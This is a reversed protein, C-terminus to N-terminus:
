NGSQSEFRRCRSHSTKAVSGSPFDRNVAILATFNCLWTQMKLDKPIYQLLFHFIFPPWSLCLGSSLYHDWIFTSSVAVPSISWSPVIKAPPVPLGQYSQMSTPAPSPSSSILSSNWIDAKLHGNVYFFFGSPLCVQLHFIFIFSHLMM